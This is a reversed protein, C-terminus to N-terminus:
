SSKKQQYKREREAGLSVHAPVVHVASERVEVTGAHIQILASEMELGAKVRPAPKRQSEIVADTGAM